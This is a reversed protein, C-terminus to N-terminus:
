RFIIWAVAIAVAYAIGAVKAFYKRKKSKDVPYKGVVKATQGNIAFKYNEGNYKINLLWIPLLSYRIKSGSFSISSNEPVVGSFDRTTEKFASETSNKVRENAREICDDAFDDYKDALFGSLYAPNFDVADDYNFPELAETYANDVKKSGDVPINAFSISGSRILKYHDTRTYDYDSDSWYTTTHASYSINANCDCDFMWFPVYVGSMEEIRKRDKFANPLFPAKKYDAEFAEMAKKKDIKFPIIYDPRSTGEFQGRIITANGCYPCVTSALTEDGTIEAGCSPCTYSSLDIGDGNGFSREEYHEWNYKSATQAQFEGDSLQNLTDVSFDNGCSDCHLQQTKESFKLAAGCCPCKYSKITEM